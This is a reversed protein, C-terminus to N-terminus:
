PQSAGPRTDRRELLSRYLRRYVSQASCHQSTEALPLLAVSAPRLPVVALAFHLFGDFQPVHIGDCIIAGMWTVILWSAACCEGAMSRCCRMHLVWVTPCSRQWCSHDGVSMHDSCEVMHIYSFSRPNTFSEASGGGGCVHTGSCGRIPMACGTHVGHRFSAVLTAEAFRTLPNHVNAPVWFLSRALLEGDGRMRQSEVALCRLADTHSEAEAWHGMPRLSAAVELPLRSLLM